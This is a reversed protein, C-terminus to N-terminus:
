KANTDFDSAKDRLWLEHQCYRPRFPLHASRCGDSIGDERRNSVADSARFWRCRESLMDHGSTDRIMFKSVSTTILLLVLSEAMSSILYSRDGQRSLHTPSSGEAALFMMGTVDWSRHVSRRRDQKVEPAAQWGALLDSDTEFACAVLVVVGSESNV